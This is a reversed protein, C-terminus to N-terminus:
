MDEYQLTTVYNLNIQTNAVDPSSNDLHAYGLIMCPSYNMPQATSWAKDYKLLKNKVKLAISFFKTSSSYDISTETNTNVLTTGATTTRQVYPITVYTVKDYYKIIADSNLPAYLDSVIGTFATSAGGKLLLQSLWATSGTVDQITNYIRPQVIMMRVAIRAGSLSNPSANMTYHGKINFRQARIQEGIRENEATGVSVNPLMRLEDGISDIGSNFNTNVVSHYAQKNEAQSHIVTRIAKALAKSPKAPKRVPRRAPRRRPNAKRKQFRSANM